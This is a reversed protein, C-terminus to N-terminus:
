IEIIQDFLARNEDYLHHTIMIVTLEKTQLLRREINIATAKDLNSVGEDMILIPKNGILERAISIRARQGGSLDDNYIQNLRGEIFNDVHSLSLAKEFQEKDVSRGLTLNDLLSEKFIHPKQPILAFITQLSELLTNKYHHNDIVIDGDYHTLEGTLVRILTSKGAGSGGVIAVKKGKKITINPYTISNGNEFTVCLDHIVLEQNFNTVTDLNEISVKKPYKELLKFTAKFTVINYAAGRTYNFLCSTLNAISFIVGTTIEGKIILYGTVIFIIVQAIISSMMSLSNATSSSRALKVKSKVVTSFDALIRNKFYATQNNHFFIGFGSLYDSTRNLAVNLDSSVAETEQAINNEFIKPLFYVLATMLISVALLLWHFYIIAFANFLVTIISEIASYLQNFGNDKLLNMDNILWSNYEDKSHHSNGAYSHSILSDLLDNRILNVEEQCLKEKLSDKWIQFISYGGWCLIDIVSWFVFSDWKSKILSDLIWTLSLSSMVNSIVWFIIITLLLLNEKKFKWLYTLM